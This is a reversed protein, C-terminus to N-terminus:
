EIVDTHGIVHLQLVIIMAYAIAHGKKYSYKDDSSVQYLKKRVESKDVADVYEHVLKTKGPRIIAICDALELISRPSIMKVVDYHNNLQFLQQVVYEENLLYWNPPIKLLKRIHEKNDFQNLINLNLFDIKTYGFESALDYPIAALDTVPDQPMNQLYMGCPHPTLKGDKILSARVAKPFLKQRDLKSPIDIDIDM